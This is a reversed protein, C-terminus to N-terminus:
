AALESRRSETAAEDVRLGDEDDHFVVGYVDHAEEVTIYEKVVDERVAEPDRELPDGYGGGGSLQFSVTDGYELEFQGKPHLEEAEDDPNLVTQGSDGGEGGELGWPQSETRELLNTFSVNEAFLTFDKRLGLGGRHRGAGGSDPILELRDIVVPYRTEHLEVPINTVNFSSCIGEEGDKRESAGVGGIMFDYLIFQEGTEPDEGSFNPNGFHSSAAIVKDPVAKAVAGLNLEVLRQNIIPRANAATPPQPNLFSGEPARVTMPKMIGENQPLYKETIAKLVFASYARTYNIYSNIASQTAPDTGDYDFILEDDDIEITVELNVPGSDVRVNDMVDEFSYKGDPMERLDERVRRESQSIVEDICTYITERDYEEIIERFLTAGHHNANQQAKLDGIVEDPLRVNAEILDVFWRELEGESIVKTPFLRLGEQYIETAEVAQSGPAMGGVDIHHAITVSFGEIRDDVFVPTVLFMDPLHGSGMYSDNLLIGDGPELDDYDYRDRVHQVAYPMSGLHGPSFNGQAVMRGERDFLGTSFDQGLSVAESKGTRQLVKGMENCMAVLRDWIVTFTIPDLEDADISIEADSDTESM